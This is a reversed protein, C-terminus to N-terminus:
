NITVSLVNNIMHLVVPPWISGTRTRTYGLVVGMALVLLMVSPSYQMHMVAFIGASVAVSLHEDALHRLSGLLLGRLLFEEFIPAMLGVGLLLLMRDTSTALVQDMFPAHFVDLFHSLVEVVLVLGLFILAWRLTPATLPRQLGLFDATRGRKWGRVAVLLLVLAGLGSWLAQRAALDGHYLLENMRARLAPDSLLSLGGGKAQLEPSMAVVGQVFLVSQLVMFVMTILGFLAVGVTFELGPPRTITPEIPDTSRDEM